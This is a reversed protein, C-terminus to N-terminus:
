KYLIKCIKNKYIINSIRKGMDTTSFSLTTDNASYNTTSYGKMEQWTREATFYPLAIGVEQERTIEAL